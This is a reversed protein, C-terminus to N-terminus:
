IFRPFDHMNEIIYDVHTCFSVAFYKTNQDVCFQLINLDLYLQKLNGFKNNKYLGYYLSHQMTM